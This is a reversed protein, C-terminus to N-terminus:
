KAFAIWGPGSPALNQQTTLSLNQGTTSASIGATNYAGTYLDIGGTGGSANGGGKGSMGGMARCIIISEDLTNSIITDGGNTAAKGTYNNNGNGGAGDGGIGGAGIIITLSNPLNSLSVKVDIWSGGGGGGGAVRATGIPGYCGSGGGGGGGCALIRAFTGAKPKLWTHTSVITTFDTISIIGDNFDSGSISTPLNKPLLFKKVPRELVQKCLHIYM